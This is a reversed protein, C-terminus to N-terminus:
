VAASALHASPPVGYRRSYERSFQNPSGYGVDYAVSTVSHEGSSLMRRAELLRLSKQYQLPTNATVDRFHKHFSSASMGVERALDPVAIMSRFDRKILSIARAIHSAHSDHRLLERLMGGHPAMLLRFHLERLIMPAMVRAEIPDDALVVYRALCDILRPDADHVAPGPPAQEFAAEGMEDYLSRLLALDLRLVIALYPVEPSASTIRAIVPTDHSVLLSQGPGIELTVEGFTTEKRGQLILCVIPEYLGPQLETTHSVRFLVMRPLPTAIDKHSTDADILADVRAALTQTDM